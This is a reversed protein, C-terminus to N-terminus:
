SISGQIAKIEKESLGAARARDMAARRQRTCEQARRDADTPGHIVCPALWHGGVRVATVSSVNCNSGQVSGARGMRIATAELDAVALPITYGRGEALDTNTWAVYVTKHDQIEINSM